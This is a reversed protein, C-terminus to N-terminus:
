AKMGTDARLRDRDVEADDTGGAGDARPSRAPRPASIPMLVSWRLGAGGGEAGSQAILQRTMSTAVPYVLYDSNAMIALRLWGAFEDRADILLPLAGLRQAKARSAALEEGGEGVDVTIPIVRRAGYKKPLLVLCLSSDLGGSYALAVAEVQPLVAAAIKDPLRSDM